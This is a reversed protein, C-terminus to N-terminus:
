RERGFLSGWSWEGEQKQQQVKLRGLLSQLTLFIRHWQSEVTGISSEHEALYRISPAGNILAMVEDKRPCGQEVAASLVELGQAVLSKVELFQAEEQASFNKQRALNIYHNFQKWCEIYTELYLIFDDLTPNSMAPLTISTLPSGGPNLFVLAGGHLEIAVMRTERYHTELRTLPTQIKRAAAFARLACRGIQELTERPVSGPLTCAVIKGARNIAVAGTPPGDIRPMPAGTGAGTGSKSFIKLLGM